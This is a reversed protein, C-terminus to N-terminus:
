GFYSSLLSNIGTDQGLRKRERCTKEDTITLRDFEISRPELQQVYKKITNDGARFYSSNRHRLKLHVRSPVNAPQEDPGFLEM